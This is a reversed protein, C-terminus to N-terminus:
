WLGGLITFSEGLDGLIAWSCVIDRVYGLLIGVTDQFYGLLIRFIDM